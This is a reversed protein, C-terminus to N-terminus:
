NVLEELPGFQEITKIADAQLKEFYSMDIKLDPMSQAIEAEIWKYGKTGTVAYYKEDKVRYLTGGDEQVPVFRGTRGIHRMSRYYLEEDKEHEERVLYMTGQLVSKSECYDNFALEEGSFLTKFIYPHQFQSGVATWATNTRAIYVADNVLCFKDFTTEHEFDYGYKKGHKKVFSIARSTAGPIKVSDTKIHAVAYKNEM